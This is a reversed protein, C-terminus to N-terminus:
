PVNLYGRYVNAVSLVRHYREPAMDTANSLQSSTREHVGGSQIQEEKPAIPQGTNKNTEREQIIQQVPTLVDAPIGSKLDGSVPLNEGMEKSKPRTRVRRKSATHQTPSVSLIIHLHEVVGTVVNFM